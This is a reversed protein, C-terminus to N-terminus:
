SPNAICATLLHSTYTLTSRILHGFDEIHRGQLAPKDIQTRSGPGGISASAAGNKIGQDARTRQTLRFLIQPVDVQRCVSHVKGVTTM